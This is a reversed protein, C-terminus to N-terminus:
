FDLLMDSDGTMFGEKLLRKVTEAGREYAEQQEKSIVASEKKKTVRGKNKKMYKEYIQTLPDPCTYSIPDGDIIAVRRRQGLRLRKQAIDDKEKNNDPVICDRPELAASFPSYFRPVEVQRLVRMFVIDSMCIGKEFTCKAIRERKAAEDIQGRIGSSTRVPAAKYKAVEIDPTFKILATRRLNKYPIGKLNSKKMIKVDHKPHLVVAKAAIRFKEKNSQVVVIRTHPPAIPGWFIACCHNHEPTFKLIQHQKNDSEMAYIPKTQYRRWGSSVTIPDRSKLLKMHLNHRKLRAQMYGVDEEELSIGGVLIPHCPNFNEVMRIPFDHVEMKLYAGTEFSETEMNMHTLNEEEMKSSLPFPDPSSTVSALRFDGVGAIHVKAGSKINCGRLYGYLSINRNCNTDKQVRELPSVDEFRYVLVYPQAARWSTPLFKSDSMVKALELIESNKYLDHELGSICSMTAGQYIETRFRDQLREITKKLEKEDDKFKDLHTLVGTVKTLGHVRLLNLFEFTEAEFGFSADVLLLVADAYKAADIMADMDDPCEVFQLRRRKDGTLINIPGRFDHNMHEEETRTFHKIPSKILLSKGVNPPGQVVVIYPPAPEQIQGGGLLLPFNDDDDDESKDRHDRYIEFAPISM